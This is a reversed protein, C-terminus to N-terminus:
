WTCMHPVCFVEVLFVALARGHWGSVVPWAMWLYFWWAVGHVSGVMGHWRGFVGDMFLRWVMGCVHRLDHKCGGHM